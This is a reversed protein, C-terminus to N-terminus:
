TRMTAADYAGISPPNPRQMGNIDRSAYSIFTGAQLLPSGVMPRYTSTLLPDDASAVSDAEITYTSQWSAFAAGAFVNGASQLLYYYNFDFAGADPTTTVLSHIYQDPSNQIVLNNKFEVGTASTWLFMRRAADANGVFTNGYVLTGNVSTVELCQAGQASAGAVVLNDSVTIDAGGIGICRRAGGYIRNGKILSSAGNCAIDSWAAGTASSVMCINGVIRTSAFAAQVDIANEVGATLTNYAIVNGTGGANGDHLTICDNSCSTGDITNHQYSGGSPSAVGTKGVFVGNNRTGSITNFHVVHSAGNGPAIGQNFPGSIVNGIAQVTAAGTAAIASNNTSVATIIKIGQVLYTGSAGTHTLQFSGTFELTPMETGDGYPLITIDGTPYRDALLQITTGRKLYLVVPTTMSVGSTIDKKPAGESLGDNGNSGNSGDLYYTAM